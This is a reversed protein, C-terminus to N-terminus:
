AGGGGRGAGAPAAAMSREDVRDALWAELVARVVPAAVAGGGGGGEVVAVVAIEPRHYPAFAVFWADDDRNPGQATGSKGAIELGEIRARRGTGRDGHVVRHMARRVIGLTSASLDEIRQAPPPRGHLHPTVLYGGNAIAAVYRAVQLPTVLTEGQGIVLNMLYGLAWGQRDAYFQRDPLQGSVEGPNLDIGTPSGLGLRRGYDHWAEIGLLQALHYFYINCSTEMAELLGLEGHGRRSACRFVVNGMSMSGYCRPFTSLTDTLGRELAAAAAVMKLTSGPPYRGRIARNLLPRSPDRMLRVREAQAGFSVFANPDFSPYSVLARVAGTRVDLVVVSGALSDPMAEVAARHLDLDVTLRLSGGPRAPRDRDPFPHENQTRQEADVEVYAVGDLGRLSAEFDRELGTKGVYDGAAYHPGGGLESEQLEGMYGVVHATLPGHPYLRQPEIQVQLAWDESLREEVIAVTRFDVDRKLRLTRQGRDYRLPHGVAEELAAVAMSDVARRGRTLLIGYSARDRALIEGDRDLILGRPAKLRKRAIRNDEAAQAFGAGELIQLHFLRLLLIAFLVAVLVMLRTRRFFGELAEPDM